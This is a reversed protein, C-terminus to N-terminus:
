KENIIMTSKTNQNQLNILTQYLKKHEGIRSPYICTYIFSMTPHPALKDLSSTLHIIQHTCEFMEREFVENCMQLSKDCHQMTKPNSPHDLCLLFRLIRQLSLDYQLNILHELDQCTHGTQDEHPMHCTMYYRVGYRLRTM